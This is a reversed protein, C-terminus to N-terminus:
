RAATFTSGVCSGWSVEELVMRFMRGSRDPGVKSRDGLLDRPTVNWRNPEGPTRFFVFILSAVFMVGFFIM